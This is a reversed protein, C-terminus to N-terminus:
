RNIMQTSNIKRKRRKVSTNSDEAPNTSGIGGGNGTSTSSTNYEYCIVTDCTQCNIDTFTYRVCVEYKNECCDLSSIDPLDIYLQLTRNGTSFDVGGSTESVWTARM